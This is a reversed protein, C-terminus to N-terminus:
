KSKWKLQEGKNFLYRFCSEIKDLKEEISELRADMNRIWNASLKAARKRLINIEEELAEIKEKDNM